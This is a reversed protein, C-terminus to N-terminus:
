ASAKTGTNEEDSEAGFDDGFNYAWPAPHVADQLTAARSPNVAGGRQRAELMVGGANLGDILFGLRVVTVIDNEDAYQERFRKKLAGTKVPTYLPGTFTGDHSVYELPPAFRACQEKFADPASTSTIYEACDRIAIPQDFLHAWLPQFVTPTEHHDAAVFQMFQEFKSFGACSKADENALLSFWCAWPGIRYVMDAPQGDITICGATNIKVSDDHLNVVQVDFAPLSSEQIDGAAFADAQAKVHERYQEVAFLVHARERQIKSAHEASLVKEAPLATTNVVDLFYVGKNVPCQRKEARHKRRALLKVARNLEENSSSMKWGKKAGNQETHVKGLMMDAYHEMGDMRSQALQYEQYQDSLVLVLGGMLSGHRYDTLQRRAAPVFAVPINYKRSVEEDNLAAITAILSEGLLTFSHTTSPITGVAAPESPEYLSQFEQVPGPWFEGDAPRERDNRSPRLALVASLTASEVKPVTRPLEWRTIELRGRSTKFEPLAHLPAYEVTHGEGRVVPRDPKNEVYMWGLASRIESEAMTEQMTWAKTVSDQILNVKRGFPLGKWDKNAQNQEAIGVWDDGVAAIIAVHGWPIISEVFPYVLVMGVEPKTTTEGNKCAVFKHKNGTEVDVVEDKEFIESARTCESFACGKTVLLFRRAYEVCQYKYGSYIGDCYTSEGSFYADDINSRAPVGNVWGLPEGFDVDPEDNYNITGPM